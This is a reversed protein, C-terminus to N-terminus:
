VMKQVVHAGTATMDVEGSALAAVYPSVASFSVGELEIGHKKDIGKMNIIDIMLTSLSPFSLRSIKVKTPAQQASAPHGLGILALGIMLFFVLVPHTPKVALEKPSLGPGSM